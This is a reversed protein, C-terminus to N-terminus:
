KIHFAGARHRQGAGQHYFFPQFIKERLEEPIGVGNDTVEVVVVQTGDTLRQNNIKSTRIEIKKSDKECSELANRANIILNMFVQELRVPDGIVQPIDSALEKVVEINHNSLQQGLFKFTNEIVENVDIKDTPPGETRRTYIRMHDIIDAMKNVHNVIDLLDPELEETELRDKKIDRTISQCIIKIGNLPNNLEHAVGAILEGLASLKESQILQMTAEKLERNAKKIEEEAQKRETIDVAALVVGKIRGDNNQLVSSWLLVPIKAGTRTTLEKDITQFCLNDCVKPRKEDNLGHVWSTFTADEYVQSLPMDVIEDYTYGLMSLFSKNVRQIHASTSVVIVADSISELINELYNKSKELEIKQLLEIRQANLQLFISVKNLLIKPNFPKTIFDVAGAEYGKFVHAEDSYVASLFIIPLHKTKKNSRLFEALEYGDMEPMQVDLIALAFEHNLAAKLADNGSTAKIIEAGTESLVKKLAYLNKEKDDVILIKQKASVIM